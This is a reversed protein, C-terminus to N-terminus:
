SSEGQEHLWLARKFIRNARESPHTRRLETFAQANIKRANKYRAALAQAEGEDQDGDEDITSPDEALSLSESM